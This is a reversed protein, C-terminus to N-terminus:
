LMVDMVAGNVISPERRPRNADHARKPLPDDDWCGGNLWTAPHKTFQDVRNPDLAYRRAGQVIVAPDVKAVAKVWAREANAREHHRPYASWFDEFSVSAVVPVLPADDGTTGPLVPISRSSPPRTTSGRPDRNAPAPTASQSGEIPPQPTASQSGEGLGPLVIQYDTSARGDGKRLVVLEGLEVAQVVGRRVSDGSCNAAAQLASQSRKYHACLGDRNAENAIALMVLRATGTTRSHDFVAAM